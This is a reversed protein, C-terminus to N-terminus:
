FGLRVIQEYPIFYHVFSDSVDICKRRFRVAGTQLADIFVALPLFTVAVIIGIIRPTTLFDASEPLLVRVCLCIALALAGSFAGIRRWRCVRAIERANDKVRKWTTPETWHM